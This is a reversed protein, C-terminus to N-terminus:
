SKPIATKVANILAERLEQPTFPKALFSTWPVDSFMHAEAVATMLIVPIDVTMPDDKLLTIVQPGSLYPMSADCLIVDPLYTRAAPLAQRPDSILCLKLGSARLCLRVATLVDPEDDVVLVSLVRKDM